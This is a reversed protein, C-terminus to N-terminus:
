TGVQDDALPAEVVLGVVQEELILQRGDSPNTTGLNLQNGDGCVATNHWSEFIQGGLLEACGTLDTLHAESGCSLLHKDDFLAGVAPRDCDEDTSTVLHYAFGQM